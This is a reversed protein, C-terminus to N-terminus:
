LCQPGLGTCVQYGDGTLATGHCSVYACDRQLGFYKALVSRMHLRRRSADVADGRSVDRGCHGRVGPWGMHSLWDSRLFCRYRRVLGRM